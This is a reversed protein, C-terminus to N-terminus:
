GAMVVTQQCVGVFNIVATIAEEPIVSSIGEERGLHILAHLCAAVQLVQDKSKSLVVIIISYAEHSLAYFFLKVSHSFKSQLLTYSSYRLTICQMIICLQITITEM